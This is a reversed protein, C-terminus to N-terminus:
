LVVGGFIYIYWCWCCASKSTSAFSCLNVISTYDRRWDTEARKWGGFASVQSTPVKLRQGVAKRDALNRLFECYLPCSSWACVCQGHSVLELHFLLHRLPRLQQLGGEIRERRFWFLRERGGLRWGIVLWVRNWFSTTYDRQENNLSTHKHRHASREKKIIVESRLTACKKILCDRAGTLRVSLFISIDM